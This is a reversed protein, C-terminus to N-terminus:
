KHNEKYWDCVTLGIAGLTVGQRLWERFDEINGNNVREKLEELSKVLADYKAAKEKDM